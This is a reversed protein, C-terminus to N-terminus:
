DAKIGAARILEGWKRSEAQVFEAVGKPDEGTGPEYGLARLKAVVEADALVHAIEANLRAVIEPPTGRPAFWVNWAVLSFGPVGSEAFTPVNPLVSARTASTVGLAKM